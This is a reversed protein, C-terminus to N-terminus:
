SCGTLKAVYRITTAKNIPTDAYHRRGYLADMSRGVEFYIQLKRLNIYFHQVASFMIYWLVYPMKLFRGLAPLFLVATTKLLSGHTYIQETMTIFPSKDDTFTQAEVGMGCSAMVELTYKSCM